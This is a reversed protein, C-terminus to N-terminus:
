GPIDPVTVPITYKKGNMTFEFSAESTSYEDLFSGTIVDFIMIHNYPAHTWNPRFQKEGTNLPRMKNAAFWFYKKDETISVQKTDYDHVLINILKGNLDYLYSENRRTLHAIQGALVREGSEVFIFRMEGTIIDSQAIKNGYFNFFSLTYESYNLKMQRNVHVLINQKLFMHYLDYKGLQIKVKGKLFLINSDVVFPIEQSFLVGKHFVFLCFFVIMIKIFINKSQFM